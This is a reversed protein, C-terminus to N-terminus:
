AMWSIINDTSWPPADAEAGFATCPTTPTVLLDISKFRARMRERFEYRRFVRVYHDEIPQDLVPHLM